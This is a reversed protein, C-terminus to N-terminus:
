LRSLDHKIGGVFVRADEDESLYPLTLYRPLTHATSQTLHKREMTGHIM